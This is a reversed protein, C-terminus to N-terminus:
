KNDCLKEFNVSWDGPYPNTASSFTFPIELGQAPPTSSALFPLGLDSENPKRYSRDSSSKGNM